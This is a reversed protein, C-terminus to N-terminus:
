MRMFFHRISRQKIVVSSSIVSMYPFNPHTMLKRHPIMFYIKFIPVSQLAKSKYLFCKFAPPNERISNVKEGERKRM